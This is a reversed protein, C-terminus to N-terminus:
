GGFLTNRGGLRNSDVEYKEVDYRVSAAISADSFKQSILYHYIKDFM